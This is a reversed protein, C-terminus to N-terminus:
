QCHKINPRNCLYLIVSALDRLVKSFLPKKELFFSKRLLDIRLLLSKGIIKRRKKQKTIIMKNDINASREIDIEIEIEIEVSTIMKVFVDLNGM